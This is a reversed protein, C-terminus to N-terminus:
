GAFPRAPPGSVDVETVFVSGALPQHDPLEVSATTIYLSRGDVGGFCCATVNDTPVTLVRDLAGDPAYRRVAAGGWLALWVGGADDVALGDPIGAGPEIAVWQRRESIQGDAIEFDFADIRHTLSDVYYMTEGDPSWGLGNSM